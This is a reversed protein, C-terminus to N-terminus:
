ENNHGNILEMAAQQVDNDTVDLGILDLRANAAAIFNLVGTKFYLALQKVGENRLEDRNM